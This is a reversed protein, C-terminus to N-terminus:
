HIKWSMMLKVTFFINAILMELAMKYQFKESMILDIYCIIRKTSRTYQDFKTGVSNRCAM